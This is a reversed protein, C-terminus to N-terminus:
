NQTFFPTQALIYPMIECIRLAPAEYGETDGFTLGPAIRPFEPLKKSYSKRQCSLVLFEFSLVSLVGDAEKSQSFLLM